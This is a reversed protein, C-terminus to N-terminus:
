QGPIRNMPIEQSVLYAELRPLKSSSKNWQGSLITEAENAEGALSRPNELSSADRLLVKAEENEVQCSIWWDIRGDM